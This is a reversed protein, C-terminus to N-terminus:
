YCEEAVRGDTRCVDYAAVHCTDMATVNLPRDHPPLPSGGGQFMGPNTRYMDEVDYAHPKPTPTCRLEAM